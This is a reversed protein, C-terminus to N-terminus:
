TFTIVGSLQAAKGTPTTYEIAYPGGASFTATGTQFSISQASTFTISVTIGNITVKGSQDFGDGALTVTTDVTHDVSLGSTVANATTIRALPKRLDDGIYGLDILAQTIRACAAIALTASSFEIAQQGGSYGTGNPVGHYIMVFTPKPTTFNGGYLVKMVFDLNVPVGQATGDDLIIWNKAM